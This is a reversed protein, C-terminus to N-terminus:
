VCPARLRQTLLESHTDVTHRRHGCRVGGAGLGGSINLMAEGLASLSVCSGEGEGYVLAGTGKRHLRMPIGSRWCASIRARGVERGHDM